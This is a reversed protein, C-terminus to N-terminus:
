LKLDTRGAFVQWLRVMAYTDLCCYALLQQRIVARRTTSTNPHIAEFFADMAMGGDQVGDLADYRLEPVIAPLVKKISWSGQQSPHYYRERAIPLLDVVRAVIALLDPSLASYRTALERMRSCEFSANYVYVPGSVGCADILAQAFPLAPDAGSTDLFETHTLVGSASLRHLSFQFCNQQYPRTGTWIPVALQITEFDLFYAPLSHPALDAAAGAADFFVTQDLTHTKVRLQKPNLLDNPVDAMDLIGQTALTQAKGGFYPLWHLPRAALAHDRSCHTYFGCAYPADCHAGTGIEPETAVAAIATAADIWSKVEVSRAFAEDSLDQVKFLGQYDGDGPYTWSSDILALGVSHLNVGGCKAVYTQIAVEDRHYDKVSTSAKVEIMQWGTQGDIWVAQMVDAFALAGEAAFGAEFVPRTQLMLQASQTLAQPVGLTPVDVLTGLNEPDFVQRAIKGVQYGVQFNAQTNSSDQRLEPQHIELWFRKPCQRLAMLKSKSFNRM